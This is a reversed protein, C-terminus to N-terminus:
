RALSIRTINAELQQKTEEPVFLGEEKAVALYGRMADEIMDISEEFTKGYSICGPLSPVTVTYGGEPEETFDLVIGKHIVQFRALHKMYIAWCYLM